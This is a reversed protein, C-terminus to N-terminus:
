PHCADLAHAEAWDAHNYGTILLEPHIKLCTLVLFTKSTKFLKTFLYLFYCGDWRVTMGIM